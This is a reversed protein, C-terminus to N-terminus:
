HLSCRRISAAAIYPLAQYLFYSLKLQTYCDHLYHEEDHIYTVLRRIKNNLHLVEEKARCMKFYLDTAQHAAPMAWPCQSIDQHADCLLDFDSLFVYEIVIHKCLKYGTGSCNLKTLEFICAVVLGELADLARQYKRKAVLCGADEWEPTDPVEHSATLNILKQWYEMQLTEHEPESKLGQLYEKEDTIWQDFVSVDTIDLDWMVESLNIQGNQLIDLAQRYNNYLFNGLNPYVDYEDNHQFYASILQQRHFVSAYRITLALANSKSFTRECTELDELGLGKVYTALHDLQCIRQHAHGHFAGVLCSHRLACAQPGLISNDLTTKFQCGIDYRGGLDAGFVNLLKAVVALPYKTQVMDAILLCFGHWCVAVFIGTEDYVGWSKKMKEDDMNKWQGTCPNENDGVGEDEAANAWMNVYDRVLYQNNGVQQTTLLEISPWMYYVRKLSDNGDMTYLLRFIMPPEGELLADVWTCNQLYLDFAISFQRSLYRQFITGHLDCISKVYAQISFHPSRLRAVCYLELADITIGVSPSILSCPVIGM